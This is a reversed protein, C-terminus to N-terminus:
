SESMMPFARIRILTADGFDSSSQALWEGLTKLPPGGGGNLFGFGGTTWFYGSNESISETTWLDKAPLGACCSPPGPFPTAQWYPEYILTTFCDIVGGPGRTSAPDDCVPNFFTLRLAPAAFANEGPAPNTAKHYDYLIGITAFINNPMGYDNLVGVEAAAANTFDTTLLAAGIPLPQSLELDGGIGTLDAISATGGVRVDSEFWVGPTLNTSPAFSTVTTQALATSALGIMGLGFATTVLSKFKYM